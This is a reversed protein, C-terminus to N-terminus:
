NNEGDTNTELIEKASDLSIPEPEVTDFCDEAEPWFENPDM